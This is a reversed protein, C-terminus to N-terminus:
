ATRVLSINAANVAAVTFPAATDPDVEFNSEYYTLATTLPVDTGTGISGGSEIDLRVSGAGADTKLAKMFVTVASVAVVEAPLSACGFDSRDAVAVAQIYDSISAPIEDIMAFGSVGTSPTWDAEITDADPMVLVVRKDGIFDNNHSGSTDWAFLDDVSLTVATSARQGIAVQSAEVLATACTDQGTLNLVTVGNVRVEVTGVTQSFLVKSEIHNWAAATIAPSASQGLLTGNAAGRYASIVGTSEIVISIQNANAADRYQMVALASNVSPLQDLYYAAGVGVTTLAAGFVRRLYTAITNIRRFCYTGTRAAPSASSLTAGAIVEAYLGDTMETMTTGFRDFGDMWLLM